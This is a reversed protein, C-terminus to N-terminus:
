GQGRIRSNRIESQTEQQDLGDQYDIEEEVKRLAQKAQGNAYRIQCLLQAKSNGPGCMDLASHISRLHSILESNFDDM